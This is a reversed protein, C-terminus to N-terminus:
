PLKERKGGNTKVLSSTLGYLAKVKESFNGSMENRIRHLQEALDSIADPISQQLVEKLRKALTPSKGNTSIAIKIDGKQVISGLYFNCLEPTDAVNVLIRQSGAKERVSRHLEHDDTALIVLDKDLLDDVKFHREFITCGKHELTLEYVKRRILPAVITIKANPSNGLLSQLKEFG